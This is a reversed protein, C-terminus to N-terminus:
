QSTRRKGDFHENFNYVDKNVSGVVVSTLYPDMFDHVSSMDLEEAVQFGDLLLHLTRSKSVLTVNHWNGDALNHDEATMNVLAGSGYKSSYQLIGDQLQM